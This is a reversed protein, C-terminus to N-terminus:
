QHRQMLAHLSGLQIAKVAFIKKWNLSTHNLWNRGFLNPGNGAVVVLVLKKLQDEYQVQVNLTGMVKLPENTYTKLILKSHRLKEDPFVAKRTKQSIISLAAGTNLEM